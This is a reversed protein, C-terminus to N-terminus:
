RPRGTADLGSFVGAVRDAPDAPALVLAVLFGVRVGLAALEDDLADVADTFAARVAGEAELRAEELPESDPPPNLTVFSLEVM